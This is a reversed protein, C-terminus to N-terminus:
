QRTRLGMAGPETRHGTRARPAARYGSLFWAILSRRDPRHLTFPLPSRNWTSAAAAAQDDSRRRPRAVLLALLAVLVALWGAGASPGAAQSCWGGRIVPRDFLSPHVQRPAVCPSGPAPCVWDSPCACAPQAAALRVLAEVDLLGAGCGGSLDRVCLEQGSPSATRRLLALLAQQRLGPFVAKALSAAGAVHPTAQSTGILPAYSFPPLTPELDGDDRYTGLIGDPGGGLDIEDGFASFGGGPALLDVRPGYNSYDARRGEFDQAGITIVGDMAGPSYTTADAGGNGAAAIILVGRGLAETIARQLTFSVGRGGFSMNLIDAPRPLPAVGPVSGGSAWTVADAIDSDTGDGGRIGLVRVPLIRCRPDVGAIGMRNDTNAGLIGAVHTGHLRSSFVDGADTPDADRGDGDGASEPKSIFDYGPLLRGKLDPHPLPTALPMGTPTEHLLAIGTDLVAVIVDSSGTTVTWAEPVRVRSLGWQQGFLPDSPPDAAARRIRDPEARRVRPDTAIAHVDRRTEEDGQAATQVLYIPGAEPDDPQAPADCGDAASPCDSPAVPRASPSASPGSSIPRIVRVDVGGLRLAKPLSALTAGGGQTRAAPLSFLGADRRLEVLVAGPAIEETLVAGPLPRPPRM